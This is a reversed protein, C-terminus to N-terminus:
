IESISDVMVVNTSTLKNVLETFLKRIEIAKVCGSKFIDVDPIEALLKYKKGSELVIFLVLRGKYVGGCSLHRINKKSLFIDKCEESESVVVVQLLDKKLNNMYHKEVEVINLILNMNEPTNDLALIKGSTMMVNIYAESSEIYSITEGNIVTLKKTSEDVITHLM